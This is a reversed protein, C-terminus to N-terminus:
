HRETLADIQDMFERVAGKIAQILEDDTMGADNRITAGDNLINYIYSPNAYNVPLKLWPTRIADLDDMTVGNFIRNTYYVLGLTLAFDLADAPALQELAPNKITATTTIMTKVESLINDLKNIFTQIPALYCRILFLSFEFLALM